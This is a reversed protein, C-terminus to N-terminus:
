FKLVSNADARLIEIGDKDTVSIRMGVVKIAESRKAITGVLTLVNPAYCPARFQCNISQLLGHKGPLKMGILSSVYSAVLLGHSIRTKFGRSTAYDDDMHITSSDGSFQAFYDIEKDTISVTLIEQKGVPLEAFSYENM